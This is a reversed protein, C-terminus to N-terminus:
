IKIGKISFGWDNQTSVEVMGFGKSIYWTKVQEPTHEHRFQPSLMDIQNILIERWHRNNGKMFTVVKHIPVLFLLYLIVQLKFPIHITVRRLALMINQISNNYKHYLWVCMVGNKDVLKSVCRFSSETNKTHHLVGSCYLINFYNEEFPLFNLDAQIFHVNLSTNVQENNEVSLGLDVGIAFDSNKSLIHTSRGHGCGIDIIKNGALDTENISLESFVQEKFEERDSHWIKIHDKSKLLNWEFSFSRKSKRNLRYAKFIVNGYEQLIIKKIQKFETLHRKFFNDYDLISEVLLRPVENIIPYIMGSESYLLGTQVVLATSNGFNKVKEEIVELRLKRKNLPCRLHDLLSKQM